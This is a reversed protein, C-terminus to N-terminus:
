VLQDTLKGNVVLWRIFRLRSLDDPSRDLESERYTQRFRYLRNIERTTFGAKLLAELWEKYNMQNM